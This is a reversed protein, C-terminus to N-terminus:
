VAWIAADEYRRSCRVGNTMGREMRMRVYPKFLELKSPKGPRPAYAPPEARELHKRITKRDRGTIEAIRTITLGQRRLDKFDMMEEGCIM